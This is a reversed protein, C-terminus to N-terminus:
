DVNGRNAYISGSGILLEGNVRRYNARGNNGRKDQGVVSVEHQIKRLFCHRM